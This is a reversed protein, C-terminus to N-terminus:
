KNKSNKKSNLIPKLHIRLESELNNIPRGAKEDCKILVLEHHNLAYDLAHRMASNSPSENKIKGELHNALYKLYQNFWGTPRLDFHMPIREVFVRASCKGVYFAQKTKACRFLYVGRNDNQIEGNEFKIQVLDSLALRSLLVGRTKELVSIFEGIEPYVDSDYKIVM